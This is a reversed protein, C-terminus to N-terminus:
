GAEPCLRDQEGRRNDKFLDLILNRIHTKAPSEFVREHHLLFYPYSPVDIPLRFPVFETEDLLFKLRAPLALLLSTGRILAINQRHSQTVLVINRMRRLETLKRDLSSIEPTVHGFRVHAFDLWDDLTVRESRAKSALPHAAHMVGIYEERFIEELVFPARMRADTADGVFAFDVKHSLFEDILYQTVPVFNVRAAPSQALITEFLPGALATLAYDSAAIRWTTTDAAADFVQPALLRSARSVVDRAAVMMQLAVPTPVMQRGSREFLPDKTIERLRKLGHSVAPQSLSLRAAAASVSGADGIAVLINLLGLEIRRHTNM